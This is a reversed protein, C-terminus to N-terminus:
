GARGPGSILRPDAAESSTSDGNARSIYRSAVM